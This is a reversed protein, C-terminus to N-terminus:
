TRWPSAMTSIPGCRIAKALESKGSIKPLQAQLWSELDDLIPRAQAERLQVREYAEIGFLFQLQFAPVPPLPRKAGSSYLLPALKM